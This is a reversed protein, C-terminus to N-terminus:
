KTQGAMVQALASKHRDMLANEQALFANHITVLMLVPDDPTILAKHKEALLRAVEDLDMGMGDPLVPMAPPAPSTDLEETM